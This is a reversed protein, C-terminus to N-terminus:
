RVGLVWGECAVIMQEASTLPPMRFYDALAGRAAMDQLWMAVAYADHQDASMGEEAPYRRKLMSPYMEAVVSKGAAPDWGDYPWFHLREGAQDRLWKLWPIGAHSSKAVAGQMDFQFVSKASSTWKEALRLEQATGTRVSAARLAHVSADRQHTPWHEVFDELFAPWGHLGYREFYAEPMSFCHDIGAIFREGSRARELLMAAIAQRSWNSARRMGRAPAPWKRAARGPRAGYVQLGHLPTDATGAGSYDIGIFLDFRQVPVAAPPADEKGMLRTILTPNM